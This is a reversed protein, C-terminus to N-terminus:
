LVYKSCCPFEFFRQNRGFEEGDALTQPLDKDLTEPLFLALVGGVVGLLGLILLPLM